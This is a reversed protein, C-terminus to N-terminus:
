AAFVIFCRLSAAHKKKAMEVSGKAHLRKM